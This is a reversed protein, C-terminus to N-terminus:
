SWGRYSLLRDIAMLLPLTWFCGEFIWVLVIVAPPIGDFYEARELTMRGVPGSARVMAFCLGMVLEWIM